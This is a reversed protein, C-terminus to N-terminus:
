TFFFFFFFFVLGKVKLIHTGGQTDDQTAAYFLVTHGSPKAFDVECKPRWANLLTAVVMQGLDSNPGLGGGGVKQVAAILASNGLADVANV